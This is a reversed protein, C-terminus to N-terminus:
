ELDLSRAGDRGFALVLQNEQGSVGKLKEPEAVDMRVLGGERAAICRRM